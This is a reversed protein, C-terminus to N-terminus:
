LYKLIEEFVPKMHEDSLGFDMEKYTWAARGIGFKEFISHIDKYWNLADLPNAKDIVGYEGCYLRIGHKECFDIAEKFRIYFFNPTMDIDTIKEFIPPFDFQFENTKERYYAVKGPYTLKFDPPMTAVWHASQHTFVLPDYCHFNYIINEDMPVDIDFISDIACNWYGGMLIKIAPCYSRILKIVKSAIHNWSDCFKKDTVENLLEFALMDSYKGFRKCFEEWLSYFHEQFTENAFFGVYDPNDFVFGQTKHLDLIMNLNYKRCWHIVNEVYQFGDELFIGDETQFINYDVPIRVHDIGWKSVIEVDKQKIFSDFHAKEYNCQSLWGGFNIGKQFGDIKKM